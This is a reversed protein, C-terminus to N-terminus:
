LHDWGIFLPTTKRLLLAVPARVQFSM